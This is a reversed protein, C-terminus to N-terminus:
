KLCERFVRLANSYTIKEIESESFGESRLAGVLLPMKDAGTLAIDSKIGDFDSGLAINDTGILRKIHKIHEIVRPITDSGFVPNDHLFSKEYNIGIVGGNESLGKLMGDTLNRRHPCVERACSHSAVIPAKSLSLVEFFGRDSLHSVDIIMGIENMRGILERGFDTLGNKTDPTYKNPMGDPDYGGVNPYGICNKYNWCLCIMRVGLRYFEDLRHFSGCLAEGDEMTLIASIKGERRNRVIDEACLALRLIDSGSIEGYFVEILEKAYKYPDECRAHSFVAFCQALYDGLELKREDIQLCSNAIDHNIGRKRHEHIRFITDCHLDFIM